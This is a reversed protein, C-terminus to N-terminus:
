SLWVDEVDKDSFKNNCTPCKRSRNSIREEVCQKCHMHRCRMIICEKDRFHCVPCALRSKLVSIQTNLQDVTFSSAMSGSDGGARKTFDELRATAEKAMREAKGLADRLGVIESSKQELEEVLENSRSSMKEVEAKLVSVSGTAESFEAVKAELEKSLKELQDELQGRREELQQREKMLEESVREKANTALRAALSLQRASKEQQELNEKEKGLQESIQKLHLITSLSNANMEDKETIQQLLRANSDMLNDREREARELKAKATEKSATLTALDKRMRRFEKHMKEIKDSRDHNQGSAVKDDKAAAVSASSSAANASAAAETQKRVQQQLATYKGKTEELKQKLTENMSLAVKLNEKISESQRVNELAQNLKHQLTIITESGKVAEALAAIDESDGSDTMTEALETWRKAHTTQLEDMASRAANADGRSAAWESRVYELKKELEANRSQASEAREM